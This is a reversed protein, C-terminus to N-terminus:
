EEEGFRSNVLNEITKMAENADPGEISITIKSGKEIGLSTISIFSKANAEKNNYIIKVDCNFNNLAKVLNAAPRAHLGTKNILEFEKSIIM